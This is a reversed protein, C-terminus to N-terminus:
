RSTEPYKVIFGGQNPMKVQALTKANMVDREKIIGNLSLLYATLSYAEDNTLSQPAVLPM